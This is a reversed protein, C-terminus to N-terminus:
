LIEKLMAVCLENEKPLGVSIRICQPLGFAPLQRVFVGRKMLENFIENAREETEFDVMVFNAYSKFYKLGLRGFERYFYDLGSKNNEITKKLFDTDDMAGLGAAQALNSPEFTLKVKMLPEIIDEHGVAYGVRNGAIGYAKSFTRLTLINPYNFNLSNPFDEHLIESYEFYAEDLVVLIHDPLKRLFTDLEEQTIMSGTPNNANPLYIVKTKSNIRRLIGEMDFRYDETMPVTVCPVDNIMSWIYIIVFSGESTVLEDDGSCFAKLINMLLSESGNGCIINDPKKGLKKAIKERLKQSLPDPYLHSTELAKKVEAIAKPSAGFNNENNWLIAVEDLGFEKKIEEIPKGPKYAKLSKIYQPVKIM